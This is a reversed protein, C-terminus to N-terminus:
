KCNLNLKISCVICDFFLDINVYILLDKLEKELLYWSMISSLNPKRSLVDFFHYSSSVLNNKCNAITTPLGAKCKVYTACDETDGFWKDLPMIDCIPVTTETETEEGPKCDNYECKGASLTQGTPCKGTGKVAGELCYFWKGCGSVDPVHTANKGICPNELGYYCEVNSSSLCTQKNKEFSFGSGCDKTEYKGNAGCVYYASCSDASPLKTGSKILTCHLTVNYAYTAHYM